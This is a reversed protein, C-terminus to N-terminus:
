IPEQHFFGQFIDKMYRLDIHSYIHLLYEISCKSHPERGSPTTFPPFLINRSGLSMFIQRKNQFTHNFLELKPNKQAQDFM